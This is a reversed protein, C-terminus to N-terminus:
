LSGKEWPGTIAYTPGPYETASCGDLDVLGIREEVRRLM